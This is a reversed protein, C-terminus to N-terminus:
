YCMCNASLILKGVKNPEPPRPCLRRLLNHMPAFHNLNHNKHLKLTSQFSLGKKSTLFNMVVGVYKEVIAFVIRHQSLTYNRPTEITVLRSKYLDIMIRRLKAIYQSEKHYLSCIYEVASSNHIYKPTLPWKQSVISCFNVVWKGLLSIYLFGCGEEVFVIVPTCSHAVCLFGCSSSTVNIDFFFGIHIPWVCGPAGADWQHM